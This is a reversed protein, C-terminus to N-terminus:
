IRYDISTTVELLFHFFIIQALKDSTFAEKSLLRCSKDFYVTGVLKTPIATGVFTTPISTTNARGVFTTPICALLWICSDFHDLKWKTSQWICKMFVRAVSNGHILFGQGINPQM